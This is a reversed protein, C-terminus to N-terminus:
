RTRFLRSVFRRWYPKKFDLLPTPEMSFGFWIGAEIQEPTLEEQFLEVPEGLVTASEPKLRTSLTASETLEIAEALTNPWDPEEFEAEGEAEFRGEEVGEDGNQAVEEWAAEDPEESEEALASKIDEPSVTLADDSIEAQIIVHREGQEQFEHLADEAVWDLDTFFLTGPPFGYRALEPIDEVPEHTYLSYAM